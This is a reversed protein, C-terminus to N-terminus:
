RRDRGAGLSLASSHPGVGLVVMTRGFRLVVRGAVQAGVASFIGSPLGMLGIELAPLGARGASVANHVDMNGVYRRFVDAEIAAFLEQGFASSKTVM